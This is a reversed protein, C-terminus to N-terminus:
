GHVCTFIQVRAGEDGHVGHVVCGGYVSCFLKTQGVRRECSRLGLQDCHIPATVAEVMQAAGVSLLQGPKDGGDDSGHKDHDQQGDDEEVPDLGKLDPAQLAAVPGTPAAWGPTRYPLFCICQGTM